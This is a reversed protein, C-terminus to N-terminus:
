SRGHSARYEDRSKVVLEDRNGAPEWWCGDTMLWGARKVLDLFKRELAVAEKENLVMVAADMHALFSM